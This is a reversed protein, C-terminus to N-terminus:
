AAPPVLSAGMGLSFAGGLYALGVLGVLGVLGFLGVLRVLAICCQLRTLLVQFDIKM